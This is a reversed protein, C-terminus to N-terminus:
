RVRQPEAYLGHPHPNPAQGQEFHSLSRTVGHAACHLSYIHSPDRLATATTYALVQLELEVGLRPVEM